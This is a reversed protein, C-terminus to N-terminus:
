RIEVDANMGSIPQDSDPAPSNTLRKLEFQFRRLSEAESMSLSSISVRILLRNCDVDKLPLCTEASQSLTLVRTPRPLVVLKM